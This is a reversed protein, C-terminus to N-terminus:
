LKRQTHYETELSVETRSPCRSQAARLLFHGLEGTNCAGGESLLCSRDTTAGGSYCSSLTQPISGRPRSHCPQSVQRHKRGTGHPRSHCPQSVQRHKRGTGHPRSHCPESVQRHKRGTGHPRSHCPQSVQCHKRGTGHPRSHCPQSVQRHKRGTGGITFYAHHKVDVSVMLSILSPSFRVFPTHLHPFLSIIYRNSCQWWWFSEQM